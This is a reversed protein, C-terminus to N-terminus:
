SRVMVPSADVSVRRVSELPRPGDCRQQPPWLRKVGADESSGLNIVAILHRTGPSPGAPVVFLSATRDSRQPVCLNRPGETRPAIQFLLMFSQEAGPPADTLDLVDTLSVSSAPAPRGVTFSKGIQPVFVSRRLPATSLVAAHALLPEVGALTLAGVGSALFSRPSLRWTSGRRTLSAARPHELVERDVGKGGPDAFRETQPVAVDIDRQPQLLHAAGAIRDGDAAASGEGQLEAPRGLRDHRLLDVPELVVPEAGELDKKDWQRGIAGPGNVLGDEASVTKGRQTPGGTGRTWRLELHIERKVAVAFGLQEYFARAGSNAREVILAVSRGSEEAEDLIATLLQSGLGRSRHESLLAIDLVTIESGSRDVTLRGVPANGLRVIDFTAHPHQARYSREQASLQMSVFAAWAHADSGLAAHEAPRTDAFLRALFLDDAAAM